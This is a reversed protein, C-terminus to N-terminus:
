LCACNSHQSSSDSCHTQGKVFSVGFGAALCMSADFEQDVIGCCLYTSRRKHICGDNVMWKLAITFVPRMQTEHVLDRAHVVPVVSCRELEIFLQFVAQVRVSDERWPLTTYPWLPQTPPPKFDLSALWILGRSTCDLDFSFPVAFSTSSAFSAYRM